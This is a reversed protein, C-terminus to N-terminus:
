LMRNRGVADYQVMNCLIVHYQMTNCSTRVQLLRRDEHTWGSALQHVHGDKKNRQGREPRPFCGAGKRETTRQLPGSRRWRFVGSIGVLFLWFSGFLCFATTKATRISATQETITEPHPMTTRLFVNYFM